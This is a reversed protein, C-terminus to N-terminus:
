AAKLYTQLAVKLGDERLRNKSESTNTACAEHLAEVLATSIPPIIDKMAM